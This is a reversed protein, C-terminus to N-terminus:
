EGGGKKDTDTEIQQSGAADKPSSSTAEGPTTQPAQQEDASALEKARANIWEWRKKNCYAKVPVFEADAEAGLAMGAYPRDWCPCENEYYRSRHPCESPSACLPFKERFFEKFLEPDWEAYENAAKTLEAKAVHRYARIRSSFGKGLAFYRRVVRAEVQM